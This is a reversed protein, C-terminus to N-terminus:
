KTKKIFTLILLMSLIIIVIIGILKVTEYFSKKDKEKVFISSKLNNTEQRLTNIMIQKIILEKVLSDCTAETIVNNDSITTTLTVGKKTKTSTVGEKIKVTDRIVVEHFSDILTDHLIITDREYIVTKSTDKSQVACGRLKMKEVLIHQREELKKYQRTLNNCPNCSIFVTSIILATILRTM